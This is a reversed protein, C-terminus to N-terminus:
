LKSGENKWFRFQGERESQEALLDKRAKRGGLAERKWAKLEAKTAQIESNQLPKEGEIFSLIERCGRANFLSYIFSTSPGFEVRMASPPGM